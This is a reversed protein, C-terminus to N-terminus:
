VRCCRCRSLMHRSKKGRAEEEEEEEEEEEVAGAGVTVGEEGHVGRLLWYKCGTHRKLTRPSTRWPHTRHQPLGTCTPLALARLRDRRTTTHLRGASGHRGAPTLGARLGRIVTFQGTVAGWM